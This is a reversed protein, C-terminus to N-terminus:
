QSQLTKLKMKNNAQKAFSLKADSAETRVSPVSEGSPEFWFLTMLSFQPIPALTQACFVDFLLLSFLNNIIIQEKSHARLDLTVRVLNDISLSRANSLVKAPLRCM